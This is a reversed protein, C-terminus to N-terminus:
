FPGVVPSAEVSVGERGGCCVAHPELGSKFWRGCSPCRGECCPAFHMAALTRTPRHCPCRCEIPECEIIPTQSTM